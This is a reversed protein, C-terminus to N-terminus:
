NLTIVNIKQNTKKSILDLMTTRLVNAVEWSNPATADVIYLKDSEEDKIKFVIRIYGNNRLKLDEVELQEMLFHSRSSVHKQLFEICNLFNASDQPTFETFYSM